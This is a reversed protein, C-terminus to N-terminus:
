TAVVQMGDIFGLCANAIDFNLCSEPL